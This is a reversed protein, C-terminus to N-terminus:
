EEPPESCLSPGSPHNSYSPGEGPNPSPSPTPIGDRGPVLIHDDDPSLHLPAQLGDQATEEVTLYVTDSWIHWHLIAVHALRRVIDDLGLQERGTKVEKPLGFPAALPLPPIMTEHLAMMSLKLGAVTAAHLQPLQDEMLFRVRSSFAMSSQQLDDKLKREAFDLMSADYINSSGELHLVLRVIEAAINGVNDIYRRSEGVIDVLSARLSAEARQRTDNNVQRSALMQFVDCCIDLYIISHFDSRLSRLRETDLQFTDPFSTPQALLTRMVATTFTRLKDGPGMPHQYHLQEREFWRRSRTVDFRGLSM